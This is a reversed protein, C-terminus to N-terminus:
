GENASGPQRKQNRQLECVCFYKLSCVCTALQLAGAGCGGLERALRSARVSAVPAELETQNNNNTDLKRLTIHKTNNNNNNNNQKQKKM